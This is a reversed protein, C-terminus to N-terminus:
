ACPSRFLILLFISFFLSTIHITAAINRNVRAIMMYEYMQDVCM